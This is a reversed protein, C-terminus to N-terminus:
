RANAAMRRPPAARKRALRWSEGAAVYNSCAGPDRGRAEAKPRGGAGVLALCLELLCPADIPLAHWVESRLEGAEKLVLRGLM